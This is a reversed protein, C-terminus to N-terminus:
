ETMKIKELVTRSIGLEPIFIVGVGYLQQKYIFLFSPSARFNYSKDQEYNNVLNYRFILKFNDSQAYLFKSDGSFVFNKYGAGQPQLSLLSQLEHNLILGESGTVISLGNYNQVVRGKNFWDIRIQTNVHKSSSNGQDDFVFSAIQSMSLKTGVIINQGEESVRLLIKDPSIEGLRKKEKLTPNYRVIVNDTTSSDTWYVNGKNDTATNFIKNGNIVEENIKFTEADIFYLKNEIPVLLETKCNKCNRISANQSSTFNYPISNTSSIFSMDSVNYKDIVRSNYFIFLSGNVPDIVFDSIIGSRINIINPNYSIENSYLLGSNTQAYLRYYVRSFFVSDRFTQDKNDQTRFVIENPNISALETQPLSPAMSRVVIFEKFRTTPLNAWQLVLSYYEDKSALVLTEKADNYKNFNEKQCSWTLLIASGIVLLIKTSSM